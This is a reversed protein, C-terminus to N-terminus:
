GPASQSRSIVKAYIERLRDTVIEWTYNELVKRRGAEGMRIRQAPDALLTL